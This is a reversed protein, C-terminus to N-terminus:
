AGPDEGCQHVFQVSAPVYALRTQWPKIADQALWCWITTASAETVGRQIVLRHLEARSFRGLPLGHEVPSQCAIAKVEAVQEAPFVVRAALARSTV